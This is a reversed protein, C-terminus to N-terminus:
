DATASIDKWQNEITNFSQQLRYHYIKGADLSTYDIDIERTLAAMNNKSKDMINKYDEKSFAFAWELTDDPFRFLNHQMDSELLVKNLSVRVQLTIIKAPSNKVSFLVMSPVPILTKM